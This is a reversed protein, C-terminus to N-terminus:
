KKKSKRSISRTPQIQLFHTKQLLKPGRLQAQCHNLGFQYMPSQSQPSIQNPSKPRSGNELLSSPKPQLYKSLPGGNLKSNGPWINLSHAQLLITPVFSGVYFGVSELNFVSFYHTVTELLSYARVTPKSTNLLNTLKLVFFTQPPVLLFGGNRFGSQFAKKYKKVGTLFGPILILDLVFLIIGLTKAIM